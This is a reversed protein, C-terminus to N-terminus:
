MSITLMEFFKKVQFIFYSDCEYTTNKDKLNTTLNMAPIIHLDFFFTFHIAIIM